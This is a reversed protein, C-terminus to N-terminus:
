EWWEELLCMLFVWGFDKEKVGLGLNEEGDGDIISKMLVLFSILVDCFFVNGIAILYWVYNKRDRILCDIKLKGFM